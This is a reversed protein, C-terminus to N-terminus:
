TAVEETESVIEVKFVVKGDQLKVWTRQRKIREATRRRFGEPDSQRPYHSAVFAPVADRGEGQLM